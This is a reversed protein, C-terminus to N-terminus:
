QAHSAPLNPKKNMMNTKTDKKKADTPTGKTRTLRKKLNEITSDGPKIMLTRDKIARHIHHLRKRWEKPEGPSEGPKKMKRSMETALAM